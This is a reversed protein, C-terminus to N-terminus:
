MELPSNCDMTLRVHHSGVVLLLTHWQNDDLRTGRFVWHDVVGRHGKLLFHLHNKSFRLGLIVRGPEENSKVRREEERNGHQEKGSVGRELIDGKNNDEEEEGVGTKEGRKPETLSFIYENRQFTFLSFLWYKALALLLLTCKSFYKYTFVCYGWICIAVSSKLLLCVTFLFM